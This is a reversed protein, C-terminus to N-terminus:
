PHPWVFCMYYTVEHNMVLHVTTEAQIWPSSRHWYCCPVQFALLWLSQLFEWRLAGFFDSRVSECGVRHNAENWGLGGRGAKTAWLVALSLLQAYLGLFLSVGHHWSVKWEQLLMWNEASNHEEFVIHLCQQHQLVVLALHWLVSHIKKHKHIHSINTKTGDTWLIWMIVNIALWSNM